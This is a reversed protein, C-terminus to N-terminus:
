SGLTRLSASLTRRCRAASRRKAREKPPSFSPTSEALGSGLSEADHYPISSIRPQPPAPPGGAVGDENWTSRHNTRTRQPATLTRMSGARGRLHTLKVPSPQTLNLAGLGIRALLASCGFYLSPLAGHAKPLRASSQPLDSKFEARIANQSKWGSFRYHPQASFRLVFQLHLRTQPSGNHLLLCVCRAEQASAATQAGAARRTRPGRTRM